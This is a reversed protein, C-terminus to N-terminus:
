KEKSFGYTVMEIIRSSAGERLVVFRSIKSIHSPSELMDLNTDNVGPKGFYSGSGSVNIVNGDYDKFFIIYDYKTKLLSRTRDYDDRTMNSFIELKTKDIVNNEDVIGINVVDTANWDSPYGPSVLYDTITKTESLLTKEASDGNFDQNTYFEFFVILVMSMIIIAVVLDQTFTQAKKRM